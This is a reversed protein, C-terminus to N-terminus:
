SHHLFYHIMDYLVYGVAMGAILPAILHAPALLKIPTTLFATFIVYGPVIPFVLRLSDM